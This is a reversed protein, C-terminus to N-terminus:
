FFEIELPLHDSVVDKGVSFSKIKVNPSTFVYDAIYDNYEGADKYLHTRTSKIDHNKILNLFIEELMSISQTEPRLNFDGCLVKKSSHGNYFNKLIKSQELRESTDRKGGAQWLGHLNGILFDENNTNIKLHQFIGSHNLIPAIPNNSSYTYFGGEDIIPINKRIFIAQGLRSAALQKMFYSGEPAFRPYMSFDSLVISLEQALNARAGGVDNNPETGFFLEQFCFIDTSDASNKIFKILPEFIKGGWTNLSILRM